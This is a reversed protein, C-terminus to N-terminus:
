LLDRAAPHRRLADLCGAGIRGLRVAPLAPGVCGHRYPDDM